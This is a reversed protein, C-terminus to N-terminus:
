RSRQCWYIGYMWKEYCGAKCFLHLSFITIPLYSFAIRVPWVLGGIYCGAFLIELLFPAVRKKVSFRVNKM